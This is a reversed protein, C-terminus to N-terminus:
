APVAYILRPRSLNLDVTVLHPQGSRVWCADDPHAPNNAWPHGAPSMYIPWIEILADIEQPAPPIPNPLNVAPIGGAVDADSLRNRSVPPPYPPPPPIQPGANQDSESLPPQATVRNRLVTSLLSLFSAARLPPWLQQPPPVAAHCPDCLLVTSLLALIRGMAFSLRGFCSSLYLTKLM